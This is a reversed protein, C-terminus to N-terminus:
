AVIKANGLEVTQLTTSGHFGRKVAAQAINAWAQPREKRLKEHVPEM